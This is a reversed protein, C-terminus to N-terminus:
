PSLSRAVLQEHEYLSRGLPNPCHPVFFFGHHSVFRMKKHMATASSEISSTQIPQGWDYALM